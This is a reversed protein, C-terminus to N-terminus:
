CSGLALLMTTAIVREKHVRKYLDARSKEEKRVQKIPWSDRHWYNLEEYGLLCDQVVLGLELGSNSRDTREGYKPFNSEHKSFGM